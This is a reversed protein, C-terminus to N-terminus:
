ANQDWFLAEGHHRDKSGPRHSGLSPLSMDRIKATEQSNSTVLLDESHAVEMHVNRQTVM